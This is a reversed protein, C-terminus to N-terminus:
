RQPTSGAPAHRRLVDRVHAAVQDCAATVEVPPPGLGEREEITVLAQLLADYADVARAGHRDVVEAVALDRLALEASRDGDLAAAFLRAM